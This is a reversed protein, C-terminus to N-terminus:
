TRVKTSVYRLFYSKTHYKRVPHIGSYQMIKGYAIGCGKAFPVLKANPDKALVKRFAEIPLTWFTWHHGNKSKSFHLVCNIKTAALAGM